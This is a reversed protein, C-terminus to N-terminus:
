CAKRWLRTDVKAYVVLILQLLSLFVFVSSFLFLVVLFLEIVLVLNFAISSYLCTFSVVLLTLLILSFEGFKHHFGCIGQFLILIFNAGERAVAGNSENGIPTEVSEHGAPTGQNHDESPLLWCFKYGIDGHM